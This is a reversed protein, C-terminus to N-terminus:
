AAQLQIGATQARIIAGQNYLKSREIGIGRRGLRVAEIPVTGSGSFPDLVVDREPTALLICFRVVSAPLTAPHPEMGAARMARRYDADAFHLM